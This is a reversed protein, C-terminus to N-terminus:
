RGLYVATSIAQYKRNDSIRLQSIYLRPCPIFLPRSRFSYICSSFLLELANTGNVFRSDLHVGVSAMALNNNYARIYTRFHKGKESPDSLLRHLVNSTEPLVYRVNGKQCCFSASEKPLKLAGCGFACIDSKGVRYRLYNESSRDLEINKQMKYRSYSFPEKAINKLATKINPRGQRGLRYTLIEEDESHMQTLQSTMIMSSRVPESPSETRPSSITNLSNFHHPLVKLITAIRIKM